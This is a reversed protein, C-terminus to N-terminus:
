PKWARLANTTSVTANHPSEPRNSETSSSSTGEKCRLIIGKIWHPLYHQTATLKWWSWSTNTDANTISYSAALKTQTLKKSQKRYNSIFAAHEKGESHQATQKPPQIWKPNTLTYMKRSQNLHGKPKEETEPYHRYVNEISLLPWGVYNGACISKLWTSKVPYGCVAHM